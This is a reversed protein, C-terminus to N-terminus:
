GKKLAKELFNKADQAVEKDDILADVFSPVYMMLVASLAAPMGDTYDAIALVFMMVVGMAVREEGANKLLIPYFREQMRDNDSVSILRKLMEEREPLKIIKEISM